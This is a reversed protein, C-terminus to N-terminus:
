NPYDPGLLLAQDIESLLRGELLQQDVQAQAEAVAADSSRGMDLPGGGGKLETQWYEEQQPPTSAVGRARLEKPTLSPFHEKFLKSIGAEGTTM